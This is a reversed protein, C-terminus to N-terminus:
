GMRGAAAMKPNCRRYLEDFHDNVIAENVPEMLNLYELELEPHQQLVDPREMQVLALGFARVNNPFPLCSFKRTNSVSEAQMEESQPNKGHTLMRSLYLMALIQHPETDPNKRVLDRYGAEQREIISEASSLPDAIGKLSKWFWGM